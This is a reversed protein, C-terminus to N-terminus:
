STATTTCTPAGSRRRHHQHRRRRHHAARRRRRRDAARRRGQLPDQARPSWAASSWTRPTPSSSGPTASRRGASSTCSRPTPGSRPPSPSTTARQAPGPLRVPLRHDRGRPRARHLARDARRRRLVPVPRLRRRHAARGQFGHGYGIRCTGPADDRARSRPHTRAALTPSHRAVEVNVGLVRLGARDALDDVQEAVVSQDRVRGVGAERQAHWSPLASPISRM